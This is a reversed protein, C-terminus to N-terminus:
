PSDKDLTKVLNDLEIRIRGIEQNHLKRALHTDIRKQDAAKEVITDYNEYKVLMAARRAAKDDQKASKSVVRPAFESINYMNQKIQPVFDKRAEFSSGFVDIKDLEDQVQQQYKSIEYFLNRKQNKISQEIENPDFYVNYEVEEDEKSNSQPGPSEVESGVSDGGSSSGGDDRKARQLKEQEERM